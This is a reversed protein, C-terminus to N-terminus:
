GDPREDHAHLQEHLGGQLRARRQRTAGEISDPRAGPLEGERRAGDGPARGRLGDTRVCWVGRHHEGRRHVAACSPRPRAPAYGSSRPRIHHRHPGDRSPLLARAGHAGLPHRARQTARLQVESFPSSAERGDWFTDACRRSVSFFSRRAHDTPWIAIMRPSGARCM